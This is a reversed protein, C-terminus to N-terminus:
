RCWSNPDLPQANHRIAFYLEPLQYGGSQGVTAILEGAHVTEGAKKYLSHNRGYLTMYGHDHNIIILLGYGALWKSFVIHGDAVAYVPQNLKSSILVGDWRLESQDMSQGFSQSIKGSTPWSLHGQLSAFNKGGVLHAIFQHLTSDHLQNLTNELQRRNNALAQLRQNNNKISQNIETILLNRNKELNALQQKENQKKQSLEQLTAYQQKLLEEDQEMAMIQKKLEKISIIQYTTLYHFYHFVQSTTLDQQHPELLFKLSPQNSLMYAARLQNALQKQQQNLNNQNINVKNQLVILQNHHLSLQQNTKQLEQTTNGHHIEIQQLEQQLNSYTQKKQQLQKQLSSMENDIQQLHNQQVLHQNDQSFASFSVGTLLLTIFILLYFQM